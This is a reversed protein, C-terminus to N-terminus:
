HQKSGCPAGQSQMRTRFLGDDTDLQNVIFLSVTTPTKRYGDLPLLHDGIWLMKLIM